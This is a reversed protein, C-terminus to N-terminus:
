DGNDFWVDVKTLAFIVLLGDRVSRPTPEKKLAGKTGKPILFYKSTVVECRIPVRRLVDPIIAEYGRMAPAGLNDTCVRKQLFTGPSHSRGQVKDIGEQIRTTEKVNIM